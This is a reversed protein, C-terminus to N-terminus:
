DEAERKNEPKYQRQHGAKLQMFEPVFEVGSCQVWQVSEGLQSGVSQFFFLVVWNWKVINGESERCHEWIANRRLTPFISDRVWETLDKESEDSQRERL